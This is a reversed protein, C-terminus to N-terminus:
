DQINKIDSIDGASDFRSVRAFFNFTRVLLSFPITRSLFLLPGRLKFNDISLFEIVGDHGM